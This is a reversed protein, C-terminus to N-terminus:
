KKDNSLEKEWAQREKPDIVWEYRKGASSRILEVSIEGFDNRSITLLKSVTRNVWDLMADPNDFVYKTM